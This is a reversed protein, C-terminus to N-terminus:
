YRTSSSYMPLLQPKGCAIEIPTKYGLAQHPRKFNYEILWETINRNFKDIDPTFNGFDLYEERLTRNFREDVPNDTPTHVRSLYGEIKLEGLAKDFEGKFESGNDNTINKIDKDWLYSLRFLFDKASHSSKTTYMRAYAMKSHHDIATLIYRKLGNWYIVITDLCLLFGAIPKKRLETIRKKKIGKRRKKAIKATRVSNFYLGNKEITKQVKWSSIIQGYEREYLKAIKIKGYRLHKKRILAVREEELPTIERQRRNIPAKSLDELTSLDNPNYRNLWKYFIKRSIGFHRTTKSVNATKHYYDMWSLRKRAEPSLKRELMKNALEAHSILDPVIHYGFPLIVRNGTVEDYFVKSM